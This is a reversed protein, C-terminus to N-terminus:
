EDLSFTSDIVGGECRYDAWLKEAEARNMLALIGTYNTGMLICENNRIPVMYTWEFGEGRDEAEMYACTVDARELEKLFNGAQKSTQYDPGVPLWTKVDKTNTM